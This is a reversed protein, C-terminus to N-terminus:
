THRFAELLSSLRSPKHNGGTESFRLRSPAEKGWLTGITMLLHLDAQVVDPLSLDTAAESLETHSLESIHRVHRGVRLTHDPLVLHDV